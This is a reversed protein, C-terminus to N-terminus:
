PSTPFHLHKEVKEVRKILTTQDASNSEISERMLTLETEISRLNGSQKDLITVIWDLRTSLDKKVRASLAPVLESKLWDIDAKTLM